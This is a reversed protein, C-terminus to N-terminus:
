RAYEIYRSERIVTVKIQGPYTLEQEIKKAIERCIMASEADSVEEQKIIIRIERGAQIAYAKEVGKFSTAIKELNELRKVYAEVSEQRVGPRAASLSEAAAVLVSEICTAEVEGHHAAVANVVKPSEGYKKVLEAGLAAHTGEEEHSVAKGIDHLLAARKILKADLRLESAMIGAIFAAERAHALNNQGYSTRYKLRGLLKVVEPHFDQLGVDFIVKEAEERMLKDLEKKVKEVMDEIRAPHIRGDTMLRELAIRAIERRLPDFASIIVSDPTDDIILDVGTASELARINRGERGIIRGKMGDNPLNVVSITADAVYDSGIRQITTVIIEKAERDGKERAEEEIRKIMKAAEFRAEQEMNQILQHKAEEATMGSIRELQVRQEKLNQEVRTEKERVTKERIVLDKEMRNLDSDRRDLQSGRKDLHEERQMLRRELEMLEARRERTEKEFEGRAQLLKDKVELQAERRKTEAEQEANRVIRAAIEEAEKVKQSLAQRRWYGGIVVGIFGAVLATLASVLVITLITM